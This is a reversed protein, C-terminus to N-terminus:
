AHKGVANRASSSIHAYVSEFWPNAEIPLEYTRVIDMMDGLSVTHLFQSVNNGNSEIAAVIKTAGESPEVQNLLCEGFVPVLIEEYDKKTIAKVTPQATVQAAQVPAATNSPTPFTIKPLGVANRVVRTEGGSGGVVRSAPNAQTARAQTPAQVPNGSPNPRAQAARAQPATPRPLSRRQPATAVQTQAPVGQPAALAATITPLMSEILSDTMSKEKAPAEPREGKLEEILEVKEAAKAEAIQSLKNFLQFGKEQSDQQLKMLEFLGFEPKEPKVAGQTQIKDIVREFRSEMKEFMQRQSEALKESVQQTMKAIEFFMQQSGTQSSKMMEVFAMMHAQSSQAQERAAERAEVRQKENMSQFLTFLEMFNPGQPQPSQITKVTETEEELGSMGRIPDSLTRTESKLYRKTTLSKAVVQYQGGRFEKQLQEWSYPHYKIGLMEGNRKVVYQIQHGKKTIDECHDFIDFAAAAEGDGIGDADTSDSTFAFPETFELGGSTAHLAKVAKDAAQSALKELRNESSLAM